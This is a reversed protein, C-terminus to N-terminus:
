PKLMQFSDESITYETQCAEKEALEPEVGAKILQRTFFQHREYIHEAMERGIDTLYLYCDGYM